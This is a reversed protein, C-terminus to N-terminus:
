KLTPKRGLRVLQKIILLIEKAYYRFAERDSELANAQEYDYNSCVKDLLYQAIREVREDTKVKSVTENTHCYIEIM